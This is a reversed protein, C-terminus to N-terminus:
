RKRVHTTDGFTTRRPSPAGLVLRRTVPGGGAPQEGGSIFHQFFGNQNALLPAAVAVAGPAVTPAHLTDADSLMPPLLTDGQTITPGFLTDADSLLPPDLDVAGRTLTPGFLSDADSLFPAATVHILSPPHLTDADSLLPPALSVIGPTITPGYFADADSLFPPAISPPPPPSTPVASRPRAADTLFGYPDDMWEYIEDASWAVNCVGVAYTVRQSVSSGDAGIILNGSGTNPSAAVSSNSRRSFSPNEYSIGTVYIRVNTGDYLTVSRVHHAEGGNSYSTNTDINFGQFAANGTQGYFNWWQVNAFTGMAYVRSATSFAMDAVAFVTRQNAGGVGMSAPTRGTNVYNSGPGNLGIGYPGGFIAPGTSVTLTADQGTVMDRVAPDDLNWYGTLGRPLRGGIFRPRIPKRLRSTNLRIIATM